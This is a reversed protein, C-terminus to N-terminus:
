QWGRPRMLDMIESHPDKTQATDEGFNIFHPHIDSPIYDDDSRVGPIPKHSAPAGRGELDRVQSPRRPSRIVRMPVTPVNELEAARLRHNGEGLYAWGSKHDYELMIPDKIGVGSRIDARIQNVVQESHEYNVDGEHHRYRAVVHTPVEGVVSRDPGLGGLGGDRYHAVNPHFRGAAGANFEESRSM